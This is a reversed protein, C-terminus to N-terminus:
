SNYRRNRDGRQTTNWLLQIKCKLLCMFLVSVQRPCLSWSPVCPSLRFHSRYPFVSITKSQKGQLSSLKPSFQSKGKFTQSLSSVKIIDRSLTLNILQVTYKLSLESHFSNWSLLTLFVPGGPTQSCSNQTGSGRVITGVKSLNSLKDLGWNEARYFLTSWLVGGWLLFHVM